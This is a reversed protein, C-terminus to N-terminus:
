KENTKGAIGAVTQKQVQSFDKELGQKSYQRQDQVSLRKRHWDHKELAAPLKWGGFEIDQWNTLFKRDEVFERVRHLSSKSQRSTTGTM